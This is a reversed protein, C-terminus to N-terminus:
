WLTDTYHHIFSFSFPFRKNQDNKTIFYLPITMGRAVFRKTLSVSFSEQLSSDVSGPDGYVNWSNRHNGFIHEGMQESGVETKPVDQM